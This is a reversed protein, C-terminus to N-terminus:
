RFRLELGVEFLQRSPHLIATEIVVEEVNENELLRTILLAAKLAEGTEIDLKSYDSGLESGVIYVGSFASSYISELREAFATRTSLANKYVGIRENLLRIEDIVYSKNLLSSEVLGVNTSVRSLNSSVKANLFIVILFLVQIIITLIKFISATGKLVPGSQRLLNPSLTQNEKLIKAM